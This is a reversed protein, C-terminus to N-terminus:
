GFYIQSLILTLIINTLNKLARVIIKIIWGVSYLLWTPIKAIASLPEDLIQKLRVFSCYFIAGSIVVFILTAFLKVLDDRWETMSPLSSLNLDMIVALLM